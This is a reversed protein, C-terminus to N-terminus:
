TPASIGWALYLEPVRLAPNANSLAFIACWKLRSPRAIASPGSGRSARNAVSMQGLSAFRLHSGLGGSYWDGRISPTVGTSRLAGSHEWTGSSSDFTHGWEGAYDGAFRLDSGSQRNPRNSAREQASRHSDFTHGWHGTGLTGLAGQSDFTDGWHGWHGWHGGTSGGGRPVARGEECEGARSGLCADALSV